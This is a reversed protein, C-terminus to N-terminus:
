KSRAKIVSEISKTLNDEVQRSVTEALARERAAMADAVRNAFADANINVTPLPQKNIKNVVDDGLRSANDHDNGTNDRQHPKKNNSQERERRAQRREAEYQKQKQEYIEKQYRIAKEYAEIEDTAQRARAAALKEELEALKRKQELERGVSDDGKVRALEAELDEATARAEDRLALLKNRANDISENLKNLRAEDLEHIGSTALLAADNVDRMTVNSAELNATLREIAADVADVHERYQLLIKKAGLYNNNLSQLAMNTSQVNRTVMRMADNYHALAAASEQLEERHMATINAM